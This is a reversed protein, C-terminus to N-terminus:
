AAPLVRVEGSNMARARVLSDIHPKMSADCGAALCERLGRMKAVARASKRSTAGAPWNLRSRHTFYKAAGRQAHRAMGEPLPGLVAEMM